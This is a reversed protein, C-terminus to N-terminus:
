PGRNAARLRAGAQPMVAEGLVAGNGPEGLTRLLRSLTPQSPLAASLPELGREDCSSL